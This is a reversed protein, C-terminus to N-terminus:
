TKHLKDLASQLSASYGESTYTAGSVGAITGSQAAVAEQSLTPIAEQALQASYSDNTHLSAVEVSSIRGEKETVKLAIEGYGYNELAGIASRVSPSATTTTTTSSAGAPSTTSSSPPPATLSSHPTAEAGHAVLVAALGALGATAVIPVPRRTM